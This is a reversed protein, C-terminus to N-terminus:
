ADNCIYNRLQICSLEVAPVCFLIVGNDSVGVTTFQTQHRLQLFLAISSCSLYIYDKNRLGSRASFAFSNARAAAITVASIDAIKFGYGSDFGCSFVFAL